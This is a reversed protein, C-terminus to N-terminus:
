FLYFFRNKRFLFESPASYQFRSLERGDIVDISAVSFDVGFVLLTASLM